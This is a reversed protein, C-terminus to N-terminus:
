LKNYAKGVTNPQGIHLCLTKPGRQAKYGKM